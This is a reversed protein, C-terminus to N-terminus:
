FKYNQFDLKVTFLEFITSTKQIQKIKMKM